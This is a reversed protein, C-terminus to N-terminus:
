FPRDDDELGQVAEDGFVERFAQEVEDLARDSVEKSIPRDTIVEGPIGIPLSEDIRFPPVIEGEM